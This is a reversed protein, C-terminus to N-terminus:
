HAVGRALITDAMNEHRQLQPLLDSLLREVAPSQQFTTQASRVMQIAERHGTRMEEAFTYDFNATSAKKIKDASRDLEQQVFLVGPGPKAPALDVGDAKAVAALQQEARTHDDVLMRGFNRVDQLQGRQEALQGAQLEAQNIAHLQQLLLTEQRSAGLLALSAVLLPAYFRRKV